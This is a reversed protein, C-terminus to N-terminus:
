QKGGSREFEIFPVPLIAKSEQDGDTHDEDDDPGQEKEYVNASGSTPIIIANHRIAANKDSLHKRPSHVAAIGCRYDKPGGPFLIRDSKAILLPSFAHLPRKMYQMCAEQTPDGGVFMCRLTIYIAQQILLFGFGSCQDIIRLLGRRAGRGWAPRTKMEEGCRLNRTGPFRQWGAPWPLIHLM